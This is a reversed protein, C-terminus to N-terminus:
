RRLQPSSASAHGFHSYPTQQQQPQQNMSPRRVPQPGFGSQNGVANGILVTGSANRGTGHQAGGDPSTAAAAQSPRQLAMGAHRKRCHLVMDPALEYARTCGPFACVFPFRSGLPEDCIFDRLAFAAHQVGYLRQLIQERLGQSMAVNNQGIAGALARFRVTTDNSLETARSGIVVDNIAQGYQRTAGVFSEMAGGILELLRQVTVFENPPNSGLVCLMQNMLSRVNRESQRVVNILQAGTSASPHSEAARQQQQQQQQHHQQLQQQQQMYMQQQQQHQHQTQRQAEYNVQSAREMPQHQKKNIEISLVARKLTENLSIEDFTGSGPPPFDQMTPIDPWDLDDPAEVSAATVAPNVPIQVYQQRAHAAVLRPPAFSEDDSPPTMSVDSAVSGGVSHAHQRPSEQPSSTVEVRTTLTPSDLIGPASASLLALKTARDQASDPRPAPRTPLSRPSMSRPSESAPSPSSSPRSVPASPLPPVAKKKTAAAASWEDVAALISSLSEPDSLHEDTVGSAELIPRWSDPVQVPKGKGRKGDRSSSKKLAFASTARRMFGKIGGKKKLNKENKKKWEEITSGLTTGWEVARDHSAFTLWVDTRPLVVADGDAEESEPAAEHKSSRRGSLRSGTTAPVQPAAAPPLAESDNLVAALKLTADVVGVVACDGLMIRESDALSGADDKRALVLWDNFLWTSVSQAV